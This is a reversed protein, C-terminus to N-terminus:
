NKKLKNGLVCNIKGLQWPVIHTALLSARSWIAVASWIRCEKWNQKLYGIAIKKLLRVFELCKICVVTWKMNTQWVSKPSLIKNNARELQFKYSIRWRKKLVWFIFKLHIRCFVYFKRMSGMTFIVVKTFMVNGFTTM